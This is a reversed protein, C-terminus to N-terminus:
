QLSVALHDPLDLDGSDMLAVAIVQGQVNGVTVRSDLTYLAVDVPDTFWTASAVAQQGDSTRILKQAGDRFGAKSVAAAYQDAGYGSEGLFTEVQATHVFFEEIDEVSM